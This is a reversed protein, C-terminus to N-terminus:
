LQFPTQVRTKERVCECKELNVRRVNVCAVPLCVVFLLM